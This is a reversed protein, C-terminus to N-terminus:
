IFKGRTSLSCGNYIDSRYALVFKHPVTPPLTQQIFKFSKFRNLKTSKKPPPPPPNNPNENTKEKTGM